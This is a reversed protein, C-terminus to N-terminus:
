QNVKIFDEFDKFAEQAWNNAIPLGEKFWYHIGDGGTAPYKTVKTSDFIECYDAVAKHTLDLIRPIDGPNKRSDPKTIWFCKAGSDKIEKVMKAMDNIAFLDNPYSAYNAGLEVIVFQPKMETMLNTFNPTPAKIGSIEKADTGKFYYGCPTQTDNWWWKAISGCSAYTAVKSEPLTRLLSDLKWGFPGVAHSDGIFLIHIAGLSPMSIFSVLGSFIMKKWNMKFDGQHSKKYCSSDDIKM